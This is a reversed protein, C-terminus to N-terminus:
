PWSHHDRHLRHKGNRFTLWTRTTVALVVDQHDCVITSLVDRFKWKPGVIVDDLTSLWPASARPESAICPASRRSANLRERQPIYAGAGSQNVTQLGTGVSFGDQSACVCRHPPKAPTISTKLSRPPHNTPSNVDCTPRSVSIINRRGHAERTSAIPAM